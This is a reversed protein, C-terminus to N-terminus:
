LGEGGGRFHMALPDFKLIRRTRRLEILALALAFTGALTVAVITELPPHLPLGGQSLNGVPQYSASSPSSFGLARQVERVGSSNRGKKLLYWYVLLTNGTLKNLIEDEDAVKPTLVM